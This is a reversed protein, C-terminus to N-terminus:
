DVDGEGRYAMALRTGAEDFVLAKCGGTGVDVGMFHM